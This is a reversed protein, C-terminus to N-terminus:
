ERQWREGVGEVMKEGSRRGDRGCERQWRKGVGEAMEERNSREVNAKDAWTKDRKRKGSENGDTEGIRGM